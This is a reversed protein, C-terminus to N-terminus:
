LVCLHHVTMGHLCDGCAEGCERGRGAHCICVEFRRSLVRQQGMVLGSPARPRAGLSGTGLARFM